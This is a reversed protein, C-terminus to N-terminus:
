RGGGLLRRGAPDLASRRKLTVDIRTVKGAASAALRVDAVRDTGVAIAARYGRRGDRAVTGLAKRFSQLSAGVAARDPASRMGPGRLTFAEVRGNRLRLELAAAGRYTWRETAGRSARKVPTGLCRQADAAAVGLLPLTRRVSRGSGKRTLWRATACATQRTTKPQERNAPQPQPQPQPPKPQPKPQAPVDFPTVTRFRASVNGATWSVTGGSSPGRWSFSGDEASIPATATGGGSDITVDDALASSGTLASGAVGGSATVAAQLKAVRFSFSQQPHSGHPVFELRDDARLPLTTAFSGAQVPVADAHAVLTTGRIVRVDITSVQASLDTGTVRGTTTNAELM